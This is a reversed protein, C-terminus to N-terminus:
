PAARLGEPLEAPACPQWPGDLSASAEWNRGAERFFRGDLWYTGPRGEVAYTRRSADFVLDVGQPTAARFGREPPPPAPRPLQAPPAACAAALFALGLARAPRTV